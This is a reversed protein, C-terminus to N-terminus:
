HNRPLLLDFQVSSGQAEFQLEGGLMRAIHRSLYLGLGSGSQSM